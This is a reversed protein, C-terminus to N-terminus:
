NSSFQHPAEAHWLGMEWAEAAIIAAGRANPDVAGKSVDGQDAAVTTPAIKTRPVDENVVQLGGQALVADRMCPLAGIGLM